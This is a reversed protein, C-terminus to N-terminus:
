DARLLGSGSAERDRGHPRRLPLPLPRPSADVSFEIHMRSQGCRPERRGSASPLQQRPQRQGRNPRRGTDEFDAIDLRSTTLEKHSAIRALSQSPAARQRAASQAISQGHEASRITPRASKAATCARYGVDVPRQLKSTCRRTTSWAVTTLSTVTVSPSCDARSTASPPRPRDCRAPSRISAQPTRDAKPRASRVMGPSRIGQATRTLCAKSAAPREIGRGRRSMAAPEADASAFATACDRSDLRAAHVQSALERKQM